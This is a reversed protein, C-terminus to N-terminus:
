LQHVVECVAPWSQRYVEFFREYAQQSEPNPQWTDRECVLVSVADELSAYEGAATGALMAAALCGSEAVNLTVVDKGTIDAKLQLWVPSKSGGGTVRLRNLGVGAEELSRINLNLEYCTGELLGKIFTKEDCALTLGLVAGRALPDMYPTGSGAFYPLWLLGSPGEPLDALLLDYVDSGTREAEALRDPAFNNRYWRLLSGCSYNFAITCYLDPVVHPYCCYNASRMKENLVAEEFAVTICEVTGMGDAALGEKIVGAGLANMPQDHGGAVVLCGDALGLDTAAAGHLRGVVEGSAIPAAFLDERLDGAQLMEDSRQKKVVDFAMTRAALSHDIRPELGLKYFLLDPWLLYKWTREHVDPRNEAMWMIKNLTFSPHVPMGTIAFVRDEGLSEHWSAAQKVARSDPSVITNYVFSGDAAVPTFAEGLASVSFGIVPEPSGKAAEAITAQVKAWVDGADLEIWGTQPYIEGYERYAQSLITGQTNFVVAKCGTSGIDLGLLAM